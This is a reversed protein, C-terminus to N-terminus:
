VDCLLVGLVMEVFCGVGCCVCCYDFLVYRFKVSLLGIGWGVFLRLGILKVVLNRVFDGCMCILWVCKLKLRMIGCMLLFISVFRCVVM